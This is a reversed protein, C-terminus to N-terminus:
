EDEFIRLYPARETEYWAPAIEDVDLIGENVVEEIKEPDIVRKTVKMWVKRAKSGKTKVKSKFKKEIISQLSQCRAPSKDTLDDDTAIWTSGGTGKVLTGHFGDGQLHDLKMDIMFKQAAAKYAAADKEMEDLGSEKRVEDIESKLNRFANLAQVADKETKIEVFGNDHVKLAM